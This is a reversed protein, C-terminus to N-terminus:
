SVIPSALPAQTCELGYLAVEPDALTDRTVVTFGTSVETEAPLEGTKLYAVALRQSDANGSPTKCRCGSSAGRLAPM